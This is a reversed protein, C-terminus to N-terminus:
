LNVCLSYKMIFEFYKAQTVTETLKHTDQDAHVHVMLVHERETVNGVTSVFVM